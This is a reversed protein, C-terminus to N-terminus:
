NRRQTDYTPLLTSNCLTTRPHTLTPYCPPPSPPQHTPLYNIRTGYNVLLYGCPSSHRPHLWGKKLSLSSSIIRKSSHRDLTPVQGDPQFSPPTPFFQETGRICIPVSLSLTPSACDTAVKQRLPAVAAHICEAIMLPSHNKSQAFPFPSLALGTPIHKAGGTTTLTPFAIHYDSYDMSMLMKMIM